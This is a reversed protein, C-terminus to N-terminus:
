KAIEEANETTDINNIATRFDNGVALWDGAMNEKDSGIRSKIKPVSGSPFISLITGMGLLIQYLRM